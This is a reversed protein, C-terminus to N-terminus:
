CAGYWAGTRHRVDASFIEIHDSRSCRGNQGLRYWSDDSFRAYTEQLKEIWVPLQDFKVRQGDPRSNALQKVPRKRHGAFASLDPTAPGCGPRMAAPQILCRTRAFFEQVLNSGMPLAVGSCGRGGEYVPDDPERKELVRGVPLAESRSQAKCAQRGSAVCVITQCRPYPRCSHKSCLSGQLGPCPLPWENRGFSRM